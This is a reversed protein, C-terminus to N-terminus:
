QAQQRLLQRIKRPVSYMTNSGIVKKARVKAEYNANKPAYSHPFQELLELDNGGDGFVVVQNKDVELISCLRHLAAAKNVSKETLEFLGEAFPLNVVEPSDKLHQKFQALQQSDHIRCNIKIIEQELITSSPTDFHRKRLYKHAMKLVKKSIINKEAEFGKLYTVKSTNVWTEKVGIFDFALDPFKNLTKEIFSIPIAQKYLVEQQHNMLLAGNNCIIYVERQGFNMEFEKGQMARGTALVFHINREIVRDITKLIFPDTSHFRNLLTGDLDSAILKIPTNDLSQSSM